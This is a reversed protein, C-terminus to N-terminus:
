DQALFDPVSVSSIKMKFKMANEVDFRDASIALLGIALLHNFPDQVITESFASSFCFSSLVLKLLSSRDKSCMHSIRTYVPCTYM